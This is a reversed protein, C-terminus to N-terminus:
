RSGPFFRIAKVLLGRLKGGERSEVGYPATVSFKLVLIKLRGAACHQELLAPRALQKTM